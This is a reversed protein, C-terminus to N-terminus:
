GNMEAVISSAPTVPEFSDDAADKIAKGPAETNM